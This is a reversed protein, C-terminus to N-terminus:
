EGGGSRLGSRLGSRPDTGPRGIPTPTLEPFRLDVVVPYHDSAYGEPPPTTRWDAGAPRAPVGMIFRSETVVSGMLISNGMITDIVRGSEHTVWAPDSEVRDSFLDILGGTIYAQYAPQGPMANFDGLIAIPRDPNASVEAKYLEVVKAAEAERWYASRAGSKHHVVFLTLTVRPVEHNADGDSLAHKTDINADNKADNKAADGVSGTIVVDVALPSRHLVMPEGPTADPASDPHVGALPQRPWNVARTIPYRSLVSQEIGREDGADISAVHDYGLDPIWRDRFWLLAELSEIEQLAVVDADLRRLTDALARLHAQPKTMNKDEHAGSLAPDDVDDFLNEVNYSVLRVTGPTRPLVERRGFRILDQDPRPSAGDQVDVVPVDVDQVDVVQADRPETIGALGGPGAPRPRTGLLSPLWYGASAGAVLLLAAVPLAIHGFRMRGM